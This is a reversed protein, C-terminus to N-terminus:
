QSKRCRWLMKFFRISDRVPRIKSPAGAYITAIPVSDIRHGKRSLKILMEQEAEYNRTQLNMDAIAKRHLMRFGCSCDPIAQGATRTLLWSMFYNTLKRALPMTRVDNMRNGLIITAGSKEHTELFRPIERPDHQGDADLFIFLDADTQLVAEIGNLIAAGKGLNKPHEVVKAGAQRSVSATNDVSGDDVVWVESVYQRAQEIVPGIREAENFAPILAIAKPM